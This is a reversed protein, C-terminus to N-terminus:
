HSQGKAMGSEGCTETPIVGGSSDGTGCIVGTYTDYFKAGSVMNPDHFPVWHHRPLVVRGVIAGSFLPSPRPIKTTPFPQPANYEAECFRM